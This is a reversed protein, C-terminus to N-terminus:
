PFARGRSRGPSYSFPNASLIDKGLYMPHQRYALGMPTDLPRRPSHFRSTVAQRTVSPSPPNGPFLDGLAKLGPHPLPIKSFRSPLFPLEFNM